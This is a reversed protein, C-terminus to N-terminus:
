RRAKVISSITKPSKVLIVLGVRLRLPLRGGEDEVTKKEEQGDKDRGGTAVRSSYYGGGAEAPCTFGEDM